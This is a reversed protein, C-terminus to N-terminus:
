NKKQPKIVTVYKANQPTVEDWKQASSSVIHISSTPIKEFKKEAMYNIFNTLSPDHGVIMITEYKNNIHHILNNLSEAPTGYIDQNIEISRYPLKLTQAFILATHLARAAPSSLLLQPKIHQDLLCSATLYANEIGNAKLPRDIDNIKINRWSSKAHRVIIITKM